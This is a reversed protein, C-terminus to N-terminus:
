TGLRDVVTQVCRSELNQEASERLAKRHVFMALSRFVLCRRQVPLVSLQVSRHLSQAAVSRHLQAPQWRHIIFMKYTKMEHKWKNEYALATPNLQAMWRCIARREFKEKIWKRLLWSSNRALLNGAFKRKVTSFFLWLINKNRANEHMMFAISHDFHFGLFFWSFVRNFQTVSLEAISWM